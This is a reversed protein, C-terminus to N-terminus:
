NWRVMAFGDHMAHSGLVLAAVALLRRFSGIRLLIGVGGVPAREEASEKSAGVELAPVLGVTCAAAVLLAADMWVIAELPAARVRARAAPPANARGRAPRRRRHVGGISRRARLPVRVRPSGTAAGGRRAGARRRADDHAGARRGARPQDRVAGGLRAGRRPR